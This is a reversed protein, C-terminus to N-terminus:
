LGIIKIEIQQVPTAVHRQFLRQQGHLRKLLLTFDTAPADRVKVDLIQMLQPLFHATIGTRCILNEIMQSRATDFVIQQRFTLLAAQRYHGITRQCLCTFQAM